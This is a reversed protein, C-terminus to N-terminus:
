TGPAHKFSLRFCTGENPCSEIDIKGGMASVQTKVLFLGMGKGEVHWHFRSYLMFLKEKCVNLDIGLGNDRITIHLYDGQVESRIKIIPTREAHRYKIANGILNMFISDIYPKVAWLTDGGSFDEIFLTQTEQIEKELNIKVLRLEERLKIAGIVTTSNRRVDLVTNLDKVVCDLEETTFVIKEVISRIEQLDSEGIDLIHGLGLIRAVPARLNHASIFAFQELQQNYEVLDRTREEVEAELTENRTTIEKNQKEIIQRAAQLELNQESVVDRQASIEEQSQTLEENQHALEETRKRVQLELIKNQKKINRIHLRYVTLIGAGLFVIASLKIWWTCWWQPLIHITLSTGQENWVGDNNSAKVKFTYIGPDLNTFMVSRQNGVYNWDTHFGELKYAYQNKATSTFNLAAYKLSFFNYEAPLTITSTESIQDKLIGGFDGPKVPENLIGLETIVVKPIFPNERVSDPNFVCIGKGGFFFQHNDNRLCARPRFDNGPMGDAIDFNRFVGDDPSFRSIGVATGLWLNGANDELISQIINNPLGDRTTYRKKFKGNILLHLGKATGVWLRGRSDELISNCLGGVHVSDSHTATEFRSLKKQTHDYRLLEELTGIWLDGKKGEYITHIYNNFEYQKERVHEFTGTHEDSLVNLGGYTAVLLQQTESSQWISFVNADSLSGKNKKDPMYHIFNDHEEDYRHLGGGWTGVWIRQQIDQYISLVPNTQLSEKAATHRFHKLGQPSKVILGEETGVWLRQKSDLMIANVVANGLPIDVEMFKEGLRDIVAVGHSYTGIWIRGQRDKCLAHVSNDPLSAPDNKNSQLTLLENTITNLRCLGGNETGIWLYKGDMCLNLVNDIPLAPTSHTNYLIYEHTAANYKQLGKGTAIWLDHVSSKVMQHFSEAPPGQRYIQNDKLNWRFLGRERIGVWFEHDSAPILSHVPSHSDFLEFYRHRNTKKDIQNVFAKNHRVGAIWLSTDDEHFESVECDFSYQPLRKFNDQQRNYVHLGGSSTSVWLVSRSDEYINLIANKLLSTTDDQENRYVTVDYGDFRNLGDMTGVWLFGRSDQLVCSVSPNSLAVTLKSFKVKELPSQSFAEMSLLFLVSLTYLSGMKSM